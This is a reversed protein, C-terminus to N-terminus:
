EYHPKQYPSLISSVRQALDEPKHSIETGNLNAQFADIIPITPVDDNMCWIKETIYALQENGICGLNGLLIIVDPKENGTALPIFNRLRRLMIPPDNSIYQISVLFRNQRLESIISKSYSLLASKTESNQPDTSWKTCLLLIKRKPPHITRFRQLKSDLYKITNPHTPMVYEEHVGGIPQLAMVKHPNRTMLIISHVRLTDLIRQADEYSRSDAEYGLAQYSDFTDTNPHHQMFEYSQCQASLGSGRGEQNALMVIIGRGRMVMTRMAHTLQINSDCLTSRLINGTFSESHVRCLTEPLAFNGLTLVKHPNPGNTAEFIQLTWTGLVDGLCIECTSLPESKPASSAGWQPQHRSAFKKISDMSVMPIKYKTCMKHIDTTHTQTCQQQHNTTTPLTSFCAVSPYIGAIDTLAVCAEAPNTKRHISDTAIMNVLGPRQFNHKHCQLNGVARITNIVRESEEKETITVVGVEGPLFECTCLYDIGRADENTKVMSPFALFKSREKPMAVQVQHLSGINQMIEYSEPQLNYAPTTLIASLVVRSTRNEMDNSSEDDEYQVICVLRHEHFARVAAQLEENLTSKQLRLYVDQDMKETSTLSYASKDALTQRCIEMDLWPKGRNGILANGQYMHIENALRCSLFMAHTQSGGLVCCQLIGRKGLETLITSPHIRNQLPADSPLAVVTVNPRATPIENRQQQQQDLVVMTSSSHPVCLLCRPHNWVRLPTRACETSSSIVVVWISPPINAPLRDQIATQVGMILAQGNQHIEQMHHRAKIGVQWPDGNPAAICGDLSQAVQLICYPQGTHAHHLFPKLSERIALADAHQTSLVTVFLGAGKLVSIGKGTHEPHPRFMGVVVQSIGASVLAKAVVEAHTEGKEGGRKEDDIRDHLPELTVYCAGGASVPPPNSKPTNEDEEGRDPPLFPTVSGLLEPIKSLTRISQLAIIEPLQVNEKGSFGEGIIQGESNSIVCGIWPFPPTIYRAREGLSIAQKMFDESM